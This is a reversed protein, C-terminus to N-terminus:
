TKRKRYESRSVDSSQSHFLRHGEHVRTVLNSQQNENVHVGLNM